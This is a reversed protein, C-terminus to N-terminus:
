KTPSLPAATEPKLEKYIDYALGPAMMATGVGKALPFPITALAGGLASAGHLAALPYNGKQLENYAEAGEYGASAGGVVPGIFKGAIRGFKAINSEKLADELFKAKTASEQAKLNKDIVKNELQASMPGRKQLSNLRGEHEAVQNATGKEGFIEHHTDLVRQKALEQQPTLPTKVPLENPILIGQRNVKFKAREAPPLDRQLRYNEAAEAVSTGGAHESGVVGTTGKEINGFAWKDGTTQKPSGKTFEHEEPMANLRIADERAKMHNATAQAHDVRANNYKLKTQELEKAHEIEQLRAFDNIKQASQSQAQATAQANLLATNKPAPAMAQKSGLIAGAAGGVVGIDAPSIESTEGGTESDGGSLDVGASKYAHAQDISSQSPGIPDSFMSNQSALSSPPLISNPPQGTQSPAPPAGPPLQTAPQTAGPNGFLANVQDLPSSANPEM